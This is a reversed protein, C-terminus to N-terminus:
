FSSNIRLGVGTDDPTHVLNVQYRGYEGLQDHYFLELSDPALAGKHDYNISKTELEGDASLGTPLTLNINADILTNTNFAQVGWVSNDQNTHLLGLKIEAFKADEIQLYSGSSSETDLIQGFKLVGFFQNTGTQYNLAMMNHQNVSNEGFSFVGTGAANMFQEDQEVLQSAITFNLQDNLQYQIGFTRAQKEVSQAADTDQWYLDQNLSSQYSAFLGFQKSLKHMASVSHGFNSESMSHFESTNVPLINSLYTESSSANYHLSMDQNKLTLQSIGLDSSPSYSANLQYNNFQFAQTATPQQQWFQNWDIAQKEINLMFSVDVSFDRDYKDFYAVSKLDPLKALSQLESPITASSENLTYTASAKTVSASSKLVGLPTMAAAMDMLGVGYTAADSYIGTNNASEKLIAVAQQPTLQDWGSLLLALGGSVIPTAMSTGNYAISSITDAGYAAEINTGPVSIFNNQIESMTTSNCSLDAGAGVDSCSGPFNSFSAIEGSSSNLAIVHLVQDEISSEISLNQYTDNNSFHEAGIPDGIFDTGGNGAATVLVTNNNQLTTLYSNFESSSGGITSFNVMETISANVIPAKGALYDVGAHIATNYASDNNFFVNVPLITAEPAVGFERGAAISAIHTGHYEPSDIDVYDYTLEINYGDDTEVARANYWDIRSYGSDDYFDIHNQNVGSDVFGITIGAGKYGEDWAASVNTMTQQSYTGPSISYSSLDIPEEPQIYKIPLTSSSGGGGGCGSLALALMIALSPRKYTHEINRPKLTM